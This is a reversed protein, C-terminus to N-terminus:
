DRFSLRNLLFSVELPEPPVGAAAKVAALLGAGDEHNACHVAVTRGTEDRLLVHVTSFTLEHPQSRDITGTKVGVGLRKVAAWDMGGGFPRHRLGQADLEVRGWAWALLFLAPVLGVLTVAFLGALLTSSVRVARARPFVRVGESM